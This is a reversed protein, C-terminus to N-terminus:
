IVICSKSRMELATVRNHLTLTEVTNFSIEEVLKKGSPIYHFVEWNINVDWMHGSFIKRHSSITFTVAQGRAAKNLFHHDNGSIGNEIHYTFNGPTIRAFSGATRRMKYINLVSIRYFPTIIKGSDDIFTIMQSDIDIKYIWGSYFSGDIQYEVQLYELDAGMLFFIDDNSMPAKITRLMKKGKSPSYSLNLLKIIEWNAVRSCIVKRCIPCEALTEVCEADFTHGCNLVIPTSFPELCISCNM